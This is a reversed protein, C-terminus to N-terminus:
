TSSHGFSLQVTLCLRVTQTDLVHHNLCSESIFKIEDYPMFHVFYFKCAENGLAEPAYYTNAPVFMVDGVSLNYVTGNILFSCKGEYIFALLHHFLKYPESRWKENGAVQSLCFFSNPCGLNEELYWPRTDVQVMLAFYAEPANKIFLEIDPM